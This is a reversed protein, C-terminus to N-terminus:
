HNASSAQQPFPKSFDLTGSERILRGVHAAGAQTLHSGDHSILRGDSTFLPCADADKGCILTHLNVFRESGLMTAMDDNGRVHADSVPNRLRTKQELSAGLYAARNVYGFSKRGIVIVKADAPFGFAEITEVLREISWPKWSAAMLTLNAQEILADLGSYFDQSCRERDRPSIFKEIPERGRYIQCRAPIYRVRIDAGSLLQGEALINVLDQSYSDGLILVRFSADPDFEGLHRLERHRARVYESREAHSVLLDADSPAFRSPLGSLAYGAAAVGSFALMGAASFTFIEKRSFRRRTRFPQEVFRWSVYAMALSMASLALFLLDSPPAPSAVRAFAFMPQHWLYASYSVLGIGVAVRSCLLRGALTAPSAFLIVLAAGLTPVLAYLGPFPTTKEFAFCALLILGLGLASAIEATGRGPAASRGRLLYIAVLSGVFLEWVRGRTDYFIKEPHVLSQADAYLFSVLAIAMTTALFVRRGGRWMMIALLPFIVYYQEEVALSWTHLLPQEEASPAFYDTENRFYINSVFFMVSLLSESFGILQDPLLIFYAGLLCAALVFFLAPLIRRARREYFSAITFRGADLETLIITTILYGSIVFFVDVGVFGGGIWGFGAHFLIVPIVAVARLGDIERRYKM